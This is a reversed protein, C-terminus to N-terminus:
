LNKWSLLGTPLEFFYIYFFLISLLCTKSESNQELISGGCYIKVSTSELVHKWSFVVVLSPYRSWLRVAKWFTKLFLLCDPSKREQPQCVEHAGAGQLGAQRPDSESLAPEAEQHRCKEGPQPRVGFQFTQLWVTLQFIHRTKTAIMGIKGRKLRKNLYKTRRVCGIQWNLEWWQHM